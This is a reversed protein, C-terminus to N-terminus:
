YVKEGVTSGCFLVCCLSDCCCATLWGHIGVWLVVWRFLFSFLVFIIATLTLWAIHEFQFVEWLKDKSKWTESLFTGVSGCLPMFCKLLRMNANLNFGTETESQFFTNHGTTSLTSFINAVVTCIESHSKIDWLQSQKEYNDSDSHSRGNKRLKWLRM